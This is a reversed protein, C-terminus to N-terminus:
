VGGAIRNIKNVSARAITRLATLNALVEALHPNLRKQPTAAEEIM